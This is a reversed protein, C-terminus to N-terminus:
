AADEQVAPDQVGSDQVASDQVAPDQEDNRGVVEDIASLIETLRVPKALAANMGINRCLRKQQYQPDATLAIIPTQSWAEPRGRISLTAEIGDM